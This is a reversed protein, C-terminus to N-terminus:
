FVAQIARNERGNYCTEKTGFNSDKTIFTISLNGKIKLRLAM